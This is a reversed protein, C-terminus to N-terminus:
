IAAAAITFSLATLAQSVVFLFGWMTSFWETRLSEAWDISALSVTFVYLILGPASIKELLERRGPAGEDQERSWRILYYGLGIWIAFYIVARVFFLVPSMYPWRHQLLKSASVREPHAWDYLSGIGFLFPIFLVALLPLTAVAAEFIRRTVIGWAGGTLYQTMLFAMCGLVVGWWFLYGLLYGHFAASPAFFAAVVWTLLLVVGGGLLLTRWRSVDRVLDGPATYPPTM